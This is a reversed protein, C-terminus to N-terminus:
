KKIGMFSRHKNFLVPTLGKTLVDAPQDASPIYCLDVKGGRVCEKIFHLKVETHKLKKSPGESEAIAMASQNDEFIQAPSRDWIALENFLKCTWLTECICDALAYCEAETSSLAM